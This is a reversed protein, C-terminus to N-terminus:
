SPHIPMLLFRLSDDVRSNRDFHTPWSLVIIKDIAGGRQELAKNAFRHISNARKRYGASMAAFPGILFFAGSRNRAIGLFYKKLCALDVPHRRNTAPRFNEDVTSWRRIPLVTSQIRGM